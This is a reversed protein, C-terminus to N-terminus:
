RCVDDARLSSDALLKEGLARAVFALADNPFWALFNVLVRIQGDNMVLTLSLSSSNRGLQEGWQNAPLPISANVKSIWSALRCGDDRERRTAKRESFQGGGAAASSGAMPVSFILCPRIKAVMGLDVLWVEGRLPNAM